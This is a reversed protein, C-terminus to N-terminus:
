VVYLLVLTCLYCTFTGLCRRFLRLDLKPAWGPLRWLNIELAFGNAYSKFFLIKWTDFRSQSFQGLSCTIKKDKWFNLTCFTVMLFQFLVLCKLITRETGEFESLICSLLFFNFIGIKSVAILNKFIEMKPDM